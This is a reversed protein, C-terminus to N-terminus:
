GRVEKNLVSQVSDHLYEANLQELRIYTCGLSRALGAAKGFTLLGTETDVVITRINRDALATAARNLSEEPSMGNVPVNGRGDTLVVMVPESGERASPVLMEYGKMIGSILPTRGGTPLEQLRRYATFVSRTLPLVVKADNDRFLVLGVRDRRKYADNLLSLVAGKVATMRNRAGMSGSGDVVFVIDAGKRKVKINERLDEKRLVVAIGDHSRFPQKPAAAVISATVSLSKIRDFPIMHGIIHGSGDKSVATDQRGNGKRDKTKVADPIYDSVRFEEGIDFTKEESEKESETQRESDDDPDTDASTDRDDRESDSNQNDPEDHSENKQDDPDDSDEPTQPPPQEEPEHRRHQLCLKVAESLDRMGAMDRGDLAALACATNLVAIDGRHGEVHMERCIDSIFKPYDKAITVDKGAAKELKGLLADQEHAFEECFAEPDTGYRINRELIELRSEEDEAGGTFVCIDFRDLTHPDIEGEAPDATAILVTDLPHTQSRGGFDSSWSGNEICDLVSQLTGQPLLNANDAIIINGHARALISDSEEPKGSAIAKEFDLTGFLMDPSVNLPLEVARKGIGLGFIGRAAVSKGTGSPGTILITRIHPSSIGALLADTLDECGVLASLPYPRSM